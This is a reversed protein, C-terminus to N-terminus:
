TPTTTIAFIGVGYFLPPQFENDPLLGGGELEEVLSVVRGAIVLAADARMAVAVLDSLSSAQEATEGVTTVQINHIVDAQGDNMPGTRSEDDLTYVVCYPFVPTRPEKPAQNDGVEFSLAAILTFLTADTVPRKAVVTETM